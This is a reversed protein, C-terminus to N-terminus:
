VKEQPPQVAQAAAQRFIKVLVRYVGIVEAICEEQSKETNELLRLCPGTLNSAVIQHTINDFIDIDKIKIDIDLVIVM